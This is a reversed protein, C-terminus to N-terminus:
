IRVKIMELAEVLDKVVKKEAFDGMVPLNWIEEYSNMPLFHGNGSEVALNSFRTYNTLFNEHVRSAITLIKLKCKYVKCFGVLEKLKLFVLDANETLGLWKKDM